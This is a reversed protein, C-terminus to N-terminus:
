GNNRQMTRFDLPIAACDIRVKYEVGDITWGAQTELFPEQQGDLFAVEIVDYLNPDALGYWISSSVTDLRADPVVDFTNAHINPTGASVATAPDQMSTALTRAVGELALPVVVRSLRINLGNVVNASDKQKGMAAKMTNLQAVSPAGSGASILNSHSAHFLAISDQNMTPNLTLVNFVQDGIARKAARGMKRPIMTFADLDDNVIAVRGLRFLKGFTFLQIKETRDGPRALKYEGNERIIDLDDFESMGPRSSQRFDPLTGARAIMPWLEDAESYGVLLSKNAINELLGTFDGSAYGIVGSARASFAAAVVRDRGMGRTSIGRTRCFDRAFEYLSWGIFDGRKAEAQKAKDPEIGARVSLALEAGRLWADGGDEGMMVHPSRMTDAGAAVAPVAYRSDNVTFGGSGGVPGTGQNGILNLLEARTQEISWLGALAGNRLADFSAGQFRPSLFLAEIGNRREAEIRQGEARGEALAADRTANFQVVTTAQNTEDGMSSERKAGGPANTIDVSRGIGVSIDAPMSVSSSEFLEWRIVTMLDSDTSQQYEVIRYGISVYPMFGGQVDAWVETARANNSFHFEGLLRGGEIRLNRVLGIPQDPDHNFLLPLGAVARSLDIADLTHVLKERGFWRPLEVDSSLSAEAIRAGDAARVADITMTRHLTEGHLRTLQDRTLMMM